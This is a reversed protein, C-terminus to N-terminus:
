GHIDKVVYGLNLQKLKEASPKGEKTWGRLRYYRDLFENQHRVMEGEGPADGTHLPEALMRRPLTDHERGFGHRVNFARELNYIREGVEWLYETDAFREIGTVAHLMKGFIDPVWGWANSFGCAIGVEGIAAQEQNYKVIDAKDVESFRDVARPETGGFIEQGAYGYCHSAGINATAYNFGQAKAGRPEYAPLELGKVHIACAQAGKGILDAARRSGEALIDGLGQRRAIRSVLDVMAQHNGYVLELGDTDKKTIIGKEYLEYAFGICNGTSITDLGLDDCLQDAAVTAGIDNCDTTGSFAWITEYEPGESLAGAYPGATVAHIKGCRVSCSYCGFESIRLKRYAEGSLKQHDHQQGYRFNRVPYVGIANTTDHTDTTGMEKHHAYGKSGKFCAIQEKVLQKLAEPDHIQLNRSTNIAIAKLNKSGMITGTGCRGATRRGTVICAYKVLNEGAPGICAVRTNKGHRRCLSDQTERTDKGWLESADNIQCTDTTLYIYAPKEAKGEVIIVDYGAFKLWAGFDAGAVSRAYAGTLPSKTGAIWRSAAQANSGALAGTIFLLKNDPSLPEVTPSLENYLYHAGFGRGGILDIVVSEDIPESKIEGTALNVRLIKRIQFPM